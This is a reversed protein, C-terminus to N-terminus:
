GEGAMAAAKAKRSDRRRDAESLLRKRMRIHKPTLEVLEDDQIYELCEELSM